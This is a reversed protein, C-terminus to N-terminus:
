EELADILNGDRKIQDILIEKLIDFANLMKPNALRYYVVNGKKRTVLIRRDRMMGLHQSLNGMDIGIKTSLETVNMENERLTNIIELRTPHSFVKCMEAHYEYIKKEIDKKQVKPM